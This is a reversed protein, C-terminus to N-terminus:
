IRDNHKPDKLAEDFNKLINEDLLPDQSIPDTKLFTKTTVIVKIKKDCQSCIYSNDGNMDIPITTEVKKDCPCVVDATIKKLQIAAELELQAQIEANKRKVHEGYFYFGIMQLIFFFISTVWFNFGFNLLFLAGLISISLTVIFSYLIKHFIVNSYIEKLV